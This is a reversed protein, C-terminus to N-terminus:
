PSRQDEGEERKGLLLSSVSTECSEEEPEFVFHPTSGMDSLWAPEGRVNRADTRRDSSDVLRLGLPVTAVVDRKCKPGDAPDHYRDVNCKQGSWFHLAANM